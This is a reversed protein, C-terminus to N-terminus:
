PVEDIGFCQVVEDAIAKTSRMWEAGDLFIADLSVVHDIAPVTPIARSRPAVTLADWPGIAMPYAIPPVAMPYAIAPLIGAQVQATGTAGTNELAHAAAFRLALAIANLLSELAIVHLQEEEEMDPVRMLEGEQRAVLAAGDSHLDGYYRSVMRRPPFWMGVTVRRHGIEVDPQEMHRTGWINTPASRAIWSLVASRTGSRINMSGPAHPVLALHIWPKDREFRQVPGDGLREARAASSVITSMRQAYKAAVESESM